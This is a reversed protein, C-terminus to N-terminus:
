DIEIQNVGFSRVRNLKVLMSFDEEKLTGQKSGLIDGPPLKMVLNLKLKKFLIKKSQLSVKLSAKMTFGSMVQTLIRLCM